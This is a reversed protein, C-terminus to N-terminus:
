TELQDDAHHATLVASHCSGILYETLRQYRLARAQAEINGSTALSIHQVQLPVGLKDCQQQCFEAWADANPSLGHHVHVAQLQRNPGAAQWRVLLQLLLMSDLGGSLGLVVHQIAYSQLQLAVAADLERLLPSVPEQTLDPMLDPNLDSM